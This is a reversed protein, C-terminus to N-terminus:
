ENRRTDEFYQLLWPHDKKVDIVRGYVVYYHEFPLTSSFFTDVFRSTIIKNHIADCVRDQFDSCEITGYKKRLLRGTSKAQYGSSHRLLIDDEESVLSSDLSLWYWYAEISYFVKGEIKMSMRYFNSLFRGLSTKGNSYINIHDVGDTDPGYKKNEEESIDEFLHM